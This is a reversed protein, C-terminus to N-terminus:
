SPAGAASAGSLRSSVAEGIFNGGKFNEGLFSEGFLIEKSRSFGGLKFVEPKDFRVHM